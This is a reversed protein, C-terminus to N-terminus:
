EGMVLEQDMNVVMVVMESAQGVQAEGLLVLRLGEMPQRKTLMNIDARLIRWLTIKKM